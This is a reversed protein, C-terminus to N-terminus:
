KRYHNTCHQTNIEVLVVCTTDVAAGVARPPVFYWSASGPVEHQGPQTPQPDMCLNLVYFVSVGVADGYFAHRGMEYYCFGALFASRQSPAQTTELSGAAFEDMDLRAAGEVAGGTSPEDEHNHPQCSHEESDTL